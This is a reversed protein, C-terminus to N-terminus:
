LVNTLWEIDCHWSKHKYQAMVINIEFLEKCRKKLMTDIQVM